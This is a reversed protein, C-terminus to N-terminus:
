KTEFVQEEPVTSSGAELSDSVIAKGVIKREHESPTNSHQIIPTNFFMKGSVKLAVDLAFLKQVGAQHVPWGATAAL